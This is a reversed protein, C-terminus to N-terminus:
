TFTSLVLGFYRSNYRLIFTIQRGILTTCQTNTHTQLLNPYFMLWSLCKSDCPLRKLTLATWNKALVVPQKQSFSASLIRLISSVSFTEGLLPSVSYSFALFFSFIFHLWLFAVHTFNFLHPVMPASSSMSSDKTSSSSVVSNKSNNGQSQTLSVCCLTVGVLFM